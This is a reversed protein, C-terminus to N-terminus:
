RGSRRPDFAQRAILDAGYDRFECPLRAVANAPVTLLAVMIDGLPLQPNALNIEQNEGGSVAIPIEQNEVIQNASSASQQLGDESRQSRECCTAAATPRL